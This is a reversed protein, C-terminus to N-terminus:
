STDSIETIDLIFNNNWNDEIDNFVKLAGNIQIMFYVSSLIISLIFTVLFCCFTM